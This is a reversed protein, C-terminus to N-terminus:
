APTAAAAAARAIARSVRAAVEAANGTHGTPGPAAQPVAAQPVAATPAATPADTPAATEPACAAVPAPASPQPAAAPAGAPATGPHSALLALWFRTFARHLGALSKGEHQVLGFFRNMVEDQEGYLKLCRQVTTSIACVAEADGIHKCEWAHLACAAWVLMTVRHGHSGVTHTTQDGHQRFVSLHDHIFAVPLRSGAAAALVASIDLMGYFSLGEAPPLPWHRLGDASWLMNSLEGLWNDCPVVVSRMLQATDVKVTRRDSSRVFEPLPLEWAPRSDHQSLWRASASVAYRGAAHAKLHMEYFGPFVVDDDCLIHVFPSPSPSAAWHEVLQQHNRRANVPGRRVTLHLGQTAAGFRGDRLMHTIQAGPSDDSIVVQFDRVTQRRLGDLAEALFDPKYAPILTTIRPTTSATTM